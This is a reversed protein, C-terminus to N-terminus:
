PDVASWSRVRRRATEVNSRLALRDGALQGVGLGVDASAAQSAPDQQQWGLEAAAGVGDVEM